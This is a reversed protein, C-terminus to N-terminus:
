KHGNMRQEQNEISLFFTQLLFVYFEQESVRTHPIGYERLKLDAKMQRVGWYDMETYERDGM